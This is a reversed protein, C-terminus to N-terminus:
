RIEQLQYGLAKLFNENTTLITGDLKFEINAQSRSVASLVAKPDSGGLGLM